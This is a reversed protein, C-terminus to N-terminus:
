IQEFTQVAKIEISLFTWKDPLECGNHDHFLRKIAARKNRCPGVRRYRRVMPVDPFDMIVDYYLSPTGLSTDMTEAYINSKM